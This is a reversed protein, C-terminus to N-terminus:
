WARRSCTGTASPWTRRQAIFRAWRRSVRSYKSLECVAEGRELGRRHGKPDNAAFNYSAVCNTDGTGSCNRVGPLLAGTHPDVLLPSNKTMKQGNVVQPSKPDAVCCQYIGARATATYIIPLGFTQDIPQKVNVKQDAYSFFFFTKNGFSGASRQVV